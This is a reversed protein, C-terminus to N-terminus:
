SKVLKCKRLHRQDGRDTLCPYIGDFFPNRSQSRSSCLHFSVGRSRAKKAKFHLSCVRTGSKPSFNQRVNRLRAIWIRTAQTEKPLRHRKVAKGNVVKGSYSYLVICYLPDIGDFYPNRSQCLPVCCYIVGRPVTEKAAM